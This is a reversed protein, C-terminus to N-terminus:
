GRFENEVRRGGVDKGWKREIEKADRDWKRGVATVQGRWERVDRGVERGVGRGM